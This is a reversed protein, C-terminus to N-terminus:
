PQNRIHFITVFQIVHVLVLYLPGADFYPWVLNSFVPGTCCLNLRSNSHCWDNIVLLLRSLQEESCITSIRRRWLQRKIFIKKKLPAIRQNDSCCVDSEAVEKAIKNITVIVEQKLLKLCGRVVTRRSSNWFHPHLKKKKKFSFISPPPNSMCFEYFCRAVFFIYIFRHM